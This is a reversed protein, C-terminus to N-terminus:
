LMVALGVQVTCASHFELCLLLKVKDDTNLFLLYKLTLMYIYM